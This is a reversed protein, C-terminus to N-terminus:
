KILKAKRFREEHLNIIHSKMRYGDDESTSTKYKNILKIVNLKSNLRLYSIFNEVTFDVSHALAIALDNEQTNLCIVTIGYGSMKDINNWIKDVQNKMKETIISSNKIKSFNKNKRKFIFDFILKFM